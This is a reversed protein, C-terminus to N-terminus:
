GGGWRFLEGLAGLLGPAVAWLGLWLLAVGAFAAWGSWDPGGPVDDWRGAVRLEDRTRDDM